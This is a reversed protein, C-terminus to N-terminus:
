VIVYASQLVFSIGVDLLLDDGSRDEDDEAGLVTSSEEQRKVAIYVCKPNVALASVPELPVEDDDAHWCVADCRM